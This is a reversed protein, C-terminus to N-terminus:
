TTFKYTEMSMSQQDGDLVTIASEFMELTKFATNCANCLRKRLNCTDYKRTDIVSNDESQCCPCKM